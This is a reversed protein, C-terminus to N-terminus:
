GYVNQGSLSALYRRRIEEDSMGPGFAAAWDVPGTQQQAQRQTLPRPQPAQPSQPPALLGQVPKTIKSYKNYADMGKSFRDWASPGTPASMGEAPAAMAGGQQLLGTGTGGGGAELEMASMATPFATDATLLGATNGGYMAAVEAPALTTGLVEPALATGAGYMGAIESGSLATGGGYMAAVEAGTLATGAAGAEAAGAAAGAGLASGAAGLAYPAFIAALVAASAAAATDIEQGHAEAFDNGTLKAMMPDLFTLWKESNGSM